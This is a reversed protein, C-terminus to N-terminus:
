WPDKRPTEPEVPWWASICLFVHPAAFLFSEWSRFRDPTLFLWITIPLWGVSYVKALGERIRPWRTEMMRAGLVLAGVIFVITTPIKRLDWSVWLFIALALLGGSFLLLLLPLSRYVGLALLGPVAVGAVVALVALNFYDQRQEDTTLRKYCHRVSTAEPGCSTIGTVGAWAFGFILVAFLGATLLTLFLAPQGRIM